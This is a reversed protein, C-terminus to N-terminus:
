QPLISIAHNGSLKMVAYSVNLLLQECTYFCSASTEFCANEFLECYECSFVQTPAEKSYVNKLKKCLSQLVSTKRYVNCVNYFSELGAKKYFVEPPQKQLNELFFINRFSECVGISNIM